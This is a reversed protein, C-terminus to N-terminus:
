GGPTLHRAFWDLILRQRELRHRPKGTGSFTHSEDPFRVFTVDRHLKKLAVFLQEGQEIPCRLDNEAHIILLPTRINQVHTV